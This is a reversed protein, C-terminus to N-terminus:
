VGIGIMDTFLVTLTDCYILFVRETVKSMWCLISTFSGLIIAACTITLRWVVSICVTAIWKKVLRQQKQEDVWEPYGWHEQPILGFKAETEPPVIARIANKFTEDFAENNLFVYPYNFNKNFKDEFNVITETIADKENNRTLVM